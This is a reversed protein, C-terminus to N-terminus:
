DLCRSEFRKLLKEQDGARKFFTQLFKKSTKIEKESLGPIDDFVALIEDQKARIEALAGKLVDSSICYGRYRRQTVRSIGVEPLPKAYRAGVLGSMDFDHPFPNNDGNIEYLHVNHCCSTAGDAIVLSWDTNAILYQFIYVLAAQRENLSGLTLGGLRVRQGNVRDAAEEASEVVFAYRSITTKKRKKESNVYSIRLLRTRYSYESIVNFIRYAAYEQLTDTQSSLHNRCHTVLKLKDQGAFVSDVVESGKFNLRMLPFGCLKLRSIGRARVKVPHERGNARLVFPWETSEKRSDILSGLPGTLTVEIVSDSDFLPSAFTFNTALLLAPLLCTRAKSYTVPMM